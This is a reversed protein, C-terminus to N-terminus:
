DMEDKNFKYSVKNSVSELNFGMQLEYEETDKVDFVLPVSVEEDVEVEESMDESLDDYFDWMEGGSAGDVALDTSGLGEEPVVPEDGINKITLHVVVYQGYYSDEYDADDVMEASDLTIELKSFNNHKTATDGMSLDLEDDGWKDPDGKDDGDDENGEIDEKIDEIDEEVDEQNEDENGQNDGNEEDAESDNEDTNENNNKEPSESTEETNNDNANDDEGNTNDDDSCAAFILSLAILLFAAFGLRKKNFM